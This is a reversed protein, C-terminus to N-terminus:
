REEGHARAKARRVLWWYAGVIAGIALTGVARTLMTEWDTILRSDGGFAAFGMMLGVTLYLAIPLGLTPEYRWAYTGARWLCGLMLGFAVIEIFLM